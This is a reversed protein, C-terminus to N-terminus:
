GASTVFPIEAEVAFGNGKTSVFQINGNLSHIREEMGQLGHSKKIDACGAGDDEVKVFLKHDHVFIDIHFSSANGHKIGNTIAERVTEYIGKQIEKSTYEATDDFFLEFNLGGAMQLSEILDDLSDRLKIKNKWAQDDKLIDVAKRLGTISTQSIGLAKGLVEKSKKPDTDIMNETFELHMKLAILAHGISDHLEQAIRTREKVITIEKLKANAEMLEANLLNGKEKERSNSRFLYILLLMALYPFLAQQVGAKLVFMVSLFVFVHLILLGSQIWPRYLFIEVIPFVFYFNLPLSDFRILYLGTGVISGMMSLYYIKRNNEFLQYRNRLHDNLHLLIFGFIFAAKLMIAIQPRLLIDISTTVILIIRFMLIIMPPKHKTM